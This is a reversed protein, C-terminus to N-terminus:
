CSNLLAVGSTLWRIHCVTKMPAMGVLPLSPSTTLTTGMLLPRPSPMTMTAIYAKWAPTITIQTTGDMRCGPPKLQKIGLSVMITTEQRAVAPVIGMLRCRMLLSLVSEILTKWIKLFLTKIMSPSLDYVSVTSLKKVSAPATDTGSDTM